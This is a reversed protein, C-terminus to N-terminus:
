YAPRQFIGDASFAFARAPFKQARWCGDQSAACRRERPYKADFEQGMIRFAERPLGIEPANASGTRGRALPSGPGSIPAGPNGSERSHVSPTDGPVDVLFVNHGEEIRPAPFVFQGLVGLRVAALPGLWPAARTRLTGAVVIVTAVVLLAYRFLDNVPLGLAAIVLVLAALKLWRQHAARRDALDADTLARAGTQRVTGVRMRTTSAGACRPPHARAAARNGSPFRFGPFFFFRSLSMGRGAVDGRFRRPVQAHAVAFGNGLRCPLIGWAGRARARRLHTRWRRRARTAP